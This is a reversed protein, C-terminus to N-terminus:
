TRDGRRYVGDLTNDIDEVATGETFRWAGSFGMEQFEEIHLKKRLRRSRKMAM